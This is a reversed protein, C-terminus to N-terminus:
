NLAPAIYSPWFVRNIKLTERLGRFIRFSSMASSEGPDTFTQLIKLNKGRALNECTKGQSPLSLASSAQEDTSVRLYTVAGKPPEINM